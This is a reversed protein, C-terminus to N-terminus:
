LGLSERENADEELADAIADVIAKAILRELAAYDPVVTLDDVAIRWANSQMVAKAREDPTM